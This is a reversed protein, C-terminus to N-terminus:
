LPGTGPIGAVAPEDGLTEIEGVIIDAAMGCVAIIVAADHRGLLGGCV